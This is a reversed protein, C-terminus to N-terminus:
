PTIALRGELRYTGSSAGCGPFPFCLPTSSWLVWQDEIFCPSALVDIVGFWRIGWPNRTFCTALLELRGGRTRCATPCHPGEGEFSAIINSVSPYSRGVFPSFCFSPSFSCSFTSQYLQGEFVRWCWLFTNFSIPTYSVFWTEVCMSIVRM